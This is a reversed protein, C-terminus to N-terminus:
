GSHLFIIGWKKGKWLKQQVKQQQQQQAQQYKGVPQKLESDPIYSAFIFGLSSM